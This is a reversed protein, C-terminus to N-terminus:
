NSNKQNYGQQMCWEEYSRYLHHFDGLTRTAKPKDTAWTDFTCSDIVLGSEHDYIVINIGRQNCSYDTDNIIIKSTNKGQFGSSYVQYTTGDSLVGEHDIDTNSLEEYVVNGNDIVTAFSDRYQIKELPVRIGLKKILEIDDQSLRYQMDDRASFFISANKLERITQFYTDYDRISVLESLGCVKEYVEWDEDYSICSISSLGARELYTEFFRTAKKAGTYNLHAGNDYTDSEWDIGLDYDYLLDIYEVNIREALEKVIDSKYKTWAGYYQQPLRVSPIKVLILQADHKKCLELMKVLIEQDSASIELDAAGTRAGEWIIEEGNEIIISRTEGQYRQDAELNMREVTVLDTNAITARPCYGKRYYHRKGAENVFDQETLNEWRDHYDVIPFFASILRQLRYEEDALMAWKRIYKLKPSGWQMNELILRYAARGSTSFLKSVDFFVYKPNAFRFVEELSYYSGEMPQTSSAMNFTVFGKEKYMLMPDVAMEMHSTGLFVAQLDSLDTEYLERYQYVPSEQFMPYWWKQALMGNVGYFLACFILVFFICGIVNRTKQAKLM